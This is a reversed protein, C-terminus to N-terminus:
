RGRSLLPLWLRARAVLKPVEGPMRLLPIAPEVAMRPGPAQGTSADVGVLTLAGAALAVAPPDAPRDPRRHTWSVASVTASGRFGVPVGLDALPIAEVAGAALRRTTGAVAGKDDFLTVDVVTEGPMGALNALVLQSSEGEPGPRHVLGPLALVGTGQRGQGLPWPGVAADTLLPYSFAELLTRRAPDTYRMATLVGGIPAAGVGGRGAPPRSRVRVTGPSALRLKPAEAVSLFFTETDGACIRADMSSVPAGRNDLFTVDVWAEQSLSQNQVNIGVDWGERDFPAVPGFLTTAPASAAPEAGLPPQRMPAGDAMRSGRVDTETLVAIPATSRLWASGQWDVLRCDVYPNFLAAAGPQVTVTTCRSSGTCDNQGQLWVEVQAAALGANQLWLRTNLGAKNGYLLPVASIQAGAAEDWSGLQAADLGTYAARGRLEAPAPGGMPACDREVRIGLPVAPLKDFPLGAFSGRGDWAAKFRQYDACDGVASFFLTECIFDAWNDDVPLDLIPPLASGGVGFVVASGTGAVAPQPLLWSSGPALLPSCEVRSPGTCDSATGAATTWLLVIAKAPMQGLNQVVVGAACDARGPGDGTLAPLFTQLRPEPVDPRPLAPGTPQAPLCLGTQAVAVDAEDIQADPELNLGENWGPDGRRKGLIARVLDVDAEERRGNGDLDFTLPSPQERQSQLEDPGIQDMVLALPENASLTVSGFWNPGVCDSSDFPFSEGPALTLIRCRRSYSCDGLHQFDLNVSACSLGANQIYLMTTRGGRTAHVPLMAYRYSSETRARGDPRTAPYSATTVVRPTVTGPCSRSVTATIAPGWAKDLPLDAFRGGTQFAQRLRLEGPAAPDMLGALRQCLVAAIPEPSAPDLGLEQLSATSLSYILGSNAEQPLTSAALQWSGRPALLGSCGFAMPGDDQPSCYGPEWWALWLLQAPRDGQNTVTVVPRCDPDQDFYALAPLWAMAQRAEERLGSGDPPAPRPPAVQPLPLCRQAAAERLFAPVRTLRIGRSIALEDGPVSEGDRAGSRLVLSAGIAPSVRAGAADAHSWWVPSVVLGGVFGNPVQYFADVDIYDVQGADLRLCRVALPGSADYALLALEAWGPQAGHNALVLNTTVGAGDLDKVLLPLSQVLGAEGGPDPLLPFTAAEALASRGDSRELRMGAAVPVADLSTVRLSGSRGGPRTAIGQRPFALVGGPCLPQEESSLVAGDPGLHEVRVRTQRAAGPPSQVYTVASWGREPDPDPVGSLRAGWDAASTAELSVLSDAGALDVAVALEADSRISLGGVSGAPGCDSLSLHAASGPDITLRGCSRAPECSGATHFDVSAEARSAGLNQLYVFGSEPRDPIRLPGALAVQSSGQAEAKRWSAGYSASVEVGPTPDGPCHRLVQATLPPGAVLGLPLGAFAGGTVWAERFRAYAACDGLFPESSLAACLHSAAPADFGLDLGLASLRRTTVSFVLASQSGTPIQAGMLSWTAGAALLGSCEVALPGACPQGPLPRGWYVAVAQAAEDGLHQLGIWSRCVDDKGLFNLMPLALFGPAAREQAAADGAAFWPTSPARHSWGVLAGLLALGALTGPRPSHRRWGAHESRAALREM